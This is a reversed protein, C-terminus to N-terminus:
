NPDTESQNSKAELTTFLAKMEEAADKSGLEALRKLAVKNLFNQGRSAFLDIEVLIRPGMLTQIVPYVPFSSTEGDELEVGVATLNRGQQIRAVRATTRGRRAGIIEHGLNRLISAGGKPDALRATLQLASEVNGARTAKFWAEVVRRAENEGPAPLAALDGVEVSGALLALQWEQTSPPDQPAALTKSREL